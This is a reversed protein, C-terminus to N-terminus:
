VGLVQIWMVFQKKNSLKCQVTLKCLNIFFKFYMKPHQYLVDVVWPLLMMLNRLYYCTKIIEKFTKCSSKADWTKIFQLNIVYPFQYKTLFISFRNKNLAFYMFFIENLPFFFNEIPMMILVLLIQKCKALKDLFM